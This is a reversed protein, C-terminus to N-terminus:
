TNETQKQMHQLLVSAWLFVITAGIWAPIFNFTCVNAECVATMNPVNSLVFAGIGVVISIWALARRGERFFRRAMIFFFIMAFVFAVIPAFGHITSSISMTEPIELPTGPPFGLIPDTRFVGGVLLGVGFIGLTIPAWKSGTGTISRRLGMAAAIYFAGALIFATMQLWGLDGQALLSASHRVWDFGERTFAQTYTIILWLPGAIVGLMLLTNNKAM